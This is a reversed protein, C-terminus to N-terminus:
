KRGPLTEYAQFDAYTLSRGPPDCQFPRHAPPAAPECPAFFRQVESLPSRRLLLALHRAHDLKGEAALAKSWDVLQPDIISPLQMLHHFPRETVPRRVSQDALWEAHTRYFFVSRAEAPADAGLHSVRMARALDVAGFIGGAVLAMGGLGLAGWRASPAPSIPEGAGRAGLALGFALCTPLLFYATWLPFEVLSHFAMVLVMAYAARAVGRDPQVARRIAQWAMVLSWLLVACVALAVPVGTEVALQLLLNHANDSPMPVRDELLTLTWAFNFQGWGVGTWPSERIMDLCNAWLHFRFSTPEAARDAVMKLMKGGFSSGHIALPWAIASIAGVFVPLARSIRHLGPDFLCWSGVILIAVSGTRSLTAGLGFGLVIALLVAVVRRRQLLADGRREAHDHLWALAVVGMAILSALQNPHRLNGGIRGMSNSEGIFWGDVWTPAFYQIAGILVGCVSAALLAECFPRFVAAGLGAGQIWVGAWLCLAAAAFFGVGAVGFGSPLGRAVSALCALALGALALTLPFARRTTVTTEHRKAAMAMLVCFLGWGVFATIHKWARPFVPDDFPMITPLLVAVLAALPLRQLAWTSLQQM